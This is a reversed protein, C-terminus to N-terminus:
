SKSVTLRYLEEIAKQRSRKTACAGIPCRSVLVSLSLKGDPCGGAAGCLLRLKLLHGASIKASDACRCVSKM